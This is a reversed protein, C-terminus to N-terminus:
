RATRGVRRETMLLGGLYAPQPEATPGRRSVSLVVGVAILNSILASGGFSVLPFPVGTTPGWGLCVVAHLLFGLMLQLGIGWALYSGFASGARVGTLFIRYVIWATLLMLAVVGVFGLEEGIISLIFDTHPDPLFFHKQLGRGLGMGFFGGSGIALMSQRAQYGAAGQMGQAFAQVRGVHYARAGLMAVLGCGGGTLALRWISGGALFILALGSAGTLFAMSLHPELAILGATGLTVALPQLLGRWTHLRGRSRSLIGALLLIMALRAFESPQILSNGVQLWRRAGRVEVGYGAALVLLLAASAGWVIWALRGGLHRTDLQTLGALLVLGVIWRTLQSQLYYLDDGHTVVGMASSSSYVMLLGAVSLALVGGLLWRDLAGRNDAGIWRSWFSM